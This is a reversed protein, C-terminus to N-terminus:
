NGVTQDIRFRPFTRMANAKATLTVGGYSEGETRPAHGCIADLVKDQIGVESGITKFTHRWAHNPAVNPDDVIERIFTTIRNKATRWAGRDEGTWMFLRGEPAVTLFAIFGLEILHDHVPVERMEKTKVRGAEPTITILWNEGEHRIDQKRLQVIEGLRAGTYACLIPVWRYLAKRQAPFRDSLPKTRSANLIAEAEDKSFWSARLKTRKGLKVRVDTAPNAPLKGNSVAWAFVAKLGSLYSDKVTKVSLTKGSGPDPELLTEKFRVVDGTKVALADDHGLFEVFRDIARKYSDYTSLSLNRAKAEKWWGGVLGTLSVHQKSSTEGGDLWVPFRAATEDERYDGEAKRQAAQFGERLARAVEHLFMLRSNEDVSSIGKRSLLRDAVPGLARELVEADEEAELQSMNRVSAAFGLALEEQSITEVRVWGKDTQEVADISHQYIDSSWARYAEGALAVANRHSLTLPTDNRVADFYRALYGAAAAHREKVETPDSTRLSFRIAAAKPSVVLEVFESGLPISLKTGALRGKLDVPIRQVFQQNSSGRRQVPRVLWFRM